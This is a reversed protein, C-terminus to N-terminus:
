SKDARHRRIRGRRPVVRAGRARKPARHPAQEREALFELLAERRVYRMGGIRISPFEHALLRSVTRPSCSLVDQLHQRTLLAPWSEPPLAHLHTSM